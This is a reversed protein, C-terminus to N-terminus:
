VATIFKAEPLNYTLASFATRKKNVLLIRSM